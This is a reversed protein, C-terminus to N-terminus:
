RAERKTGIGVPRGQRWRELDARLNRVSNPSLGSGHKVLIRAGDPMILTMHPSGVELDAGYDRQADRLLRRYEGWESM